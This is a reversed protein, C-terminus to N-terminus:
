PTGDSGNQGHSAGANENKGSNAANNRNGKRVPLNYKKEIRQWQEDDPVWKGHGLIAGLDALSLPFGTGEGLDVKPTLHISNSGYNITTLMKFVDRRWIESLINKIKVIKLGLTDQHVQAAARSNHDAEATALSQNLIARRIEINAWSIITNFAEGTNQTELMTLKTGYPFAAFTANAFSRGKNVLVESASLTVGDICEPQAYEPPTAWISPHAYKAAWENWLQTAQQKIWWPTYAARLISRGRPDNSPADWSFVMFRSRPLLGKIDKPMGNEQSLPLISGYPMRIGVGVSSMIGVINNFSDVIFVLNELPRKKIADIVVKGKFEGFNEVKYKVESVASGEWLGDLLQENVINFPVAMNDICHQVFRAIEAAKDYEPHSENVGPIVFADQTTSALALVGVDAKVESDNMMNRYIVIGFEKTIDDFAHPLARITALLADLRVAIYEKTLSAEAILSSPQREIMNFQLPRNIETTQSVRIDNSNQLQM